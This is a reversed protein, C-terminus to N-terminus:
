KRRNANPVVRPPRPSEVPGEVDLGLERLLRAFAVRSDREIQVEPRARVQNYRDVFTIGHKTLAERAQAARDLSECALVLLHLHHSELDFESVVERFWASSEPRLHSPPEPVARRSASMAFTETRATSRKWPGRPHSPRTQNPRSVLVRSFQALPMRRSGARVPTARAYAYRVRATGDSFAHLNVGGRGGRRGRRAPSGTMGEFPSTSFPLPSDGKGRVGESEGCTRLDHFVPNKTTIGHDWSRCVPRNTRKARRKGHHDWSGMVGRRRLPLPYPPSAGETRVLGKSPTRPIM